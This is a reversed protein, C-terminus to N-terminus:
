KVLSFEAMLLDRGRREIGPCMPFPKAMEGTCTYSGFKAWWFYLLLENCGYGQSGATKGLFVICNTRSACRPM